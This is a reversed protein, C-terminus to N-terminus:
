RNGLIHWGPTWCRGPFDRLDATKKIAKLKSKHCLYPSANNMKSGSHDPVVTDIKFPLSGADIAKEAVIARLELGELRLDEDDLAPGHAIDQPRRGKERAHFSLIGFTRNEPDNALVAPLKDLVM